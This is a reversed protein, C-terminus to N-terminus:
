QEWVLMYRTSQNRFFPHPFMPPTWPSLFHHKVLVLHHRADVTHHFLELAPWTDDVSIRHLLQCFFQDIRVDGVTGGALFMGFIGLASRFIYGTIDSFPTARATASLQYDSFAVFPFEYAAGAIWSAAKGAGDVAEM